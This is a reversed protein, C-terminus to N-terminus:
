NRCTRVSRLRRALYAKGREQSPLVPHMDPHHRCVVAQERSGKGIMPGLKSIGGNRMVGCKRVRVEYSKMGGWTPKFPVENDVTLGELNERRPPADRPVTVEGGSESAQGQFRTHTGGRTCEVRTTTEIMARTGSRLLQPPSPTEKRPSSPSPLQTMEREVLYSVSTGWYFEHEGEPDDGDLYTVWCKKQKKSVKVLLYEEDGNAM